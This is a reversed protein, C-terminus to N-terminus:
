SQTLESLLIKELRKYEKDSIISSCLENKTNMNYVKPPLKEFGENLEVICMKRIVFAPKDTPSIKIFEENM